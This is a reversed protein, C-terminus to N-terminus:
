TKKKPPPALYIQIWSNDCTSLTHSFCLLIILLLLRAFEVSQESYCVIIRFGMIYFCFLLGLLGLVSVENLVWRSITSWATNVPPVCRNKWQPCTENCNILRNKEDVCDLQLVALRVEWRSHARSPSRDMSVDGATESDNVYQMECCEEAPPQLHHNYKASPCRTLCTIVAFADRQLQPFSSSENGARARPHARHNINQRKALKYIINSRLAQLIGTNM